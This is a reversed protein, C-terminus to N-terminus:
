DTQEVNKIEKLVALFKDVYIDKSGLRKATELFAIARDYEHQRFAVTAYYFLVEINNQDIRYARELIEEAVTFDNDTLAGEVKELLQSQSPIRIYIIQKNDNIFIEGVYTEFGKKSGIITYKGLPVKSVTFRGNIDTISNYKEGLSIDCYPIPRNSFDYIMGNIDVVKYGFLATKCSVALLASFCALIVRKNNM